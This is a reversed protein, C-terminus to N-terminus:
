EFNRDFRRSLKRGTQLCEDFDCIMSVALDVAKDFRRCLEQNTKKCAPHDTRQHMLGRYDRDKGSLKMLSNITRYKVTGPATFFRKVLKMSRLCARVHSQTILKGYFPRITEATLLDTPILDAVPYSFPDRCDARLLFKEFEEEIELHSVGTKEVMENVYPHCESDLIFHCIFGMLYAYERSNRGKKPIVSLARGFFSLASVQHLLSGYRSIRNRRYPQYFFFIDPGQLGISFQPYYKTVIERLDGYLQESVKAGFRDHAYIAPM